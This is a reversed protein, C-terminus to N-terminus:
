PKSKLFLRLDGSQYQLPLDRFAKWETPCSTCIVACPKFAPDTFRDSPTGSVIWEIRLNAKPAGLLVWWLYEPDDGKLMLGVQTCANARIRKIVTKQDSGLSGVNAFYLELRPTDLISTSITQGPIPLIPRSQLSLLWPLGALVLLFGSALGLWPRFRAVVLGVLPASLLFFPVLLRNGFVQYTNGISFLLFTSIAVLSYTCVLGRYKKNLLATGAAILIFFLHVPNGTRDEMMVQDTISFNHNFTTRPDELNMGVLRHLKSIVASTFHNISASPTGFNLSLNRVVNSLLVGLTLVQNAHEQILAPSGLPTGYTLTNRLWFPLNIVVVLALFPLMRLVTWRMGRSFLVKIGFWLLFPLVFAFATTKTLVALGTAAALYLWTRWTANRSALASVIEAIACMVWFAVVIDTMSSSAQAIAMPLSANFAAAILQGRKGAGLRGAIFVAALICGLYALWDVLNVLLDSHQLVYTHLIVYEAFPGMMNQREIGTVYIGVSRNQAWHAVRSMHYSLSDYTQVPAKLAVFLVGFVMVCILILLVLDTSSDFVPKRLPPLRKGRHLMWGLWALGALLSVGWVLSLHFSDIAKVLSLLETSTVIIGGWIVAARLAPQYSKEEHDLLQILILVLLTLFMLLSM